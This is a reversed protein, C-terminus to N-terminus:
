SRDWQQQACDSNQRPLCGHSSNLCGDKPFSQPPLIDFASGANDIDREFFRKWKNPKFPNDPIEQNIVDQADDGFGPRTHTEWRILDLRLGSTKKWIQNLEILVEELVGREETVDSPSAVFVDFVRVESSM